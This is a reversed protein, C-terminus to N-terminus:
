RMRWSKDIYRQRGLETLQLASRYKGDPTEAFFTRVQIPVQEEDPGDAFAEALVRGDFEPLDRDIGMLALLTPAVDVNSAPVRVTAARKLDVGWAIFTNRVTWPSMSGHNGATGGLPGTKGKSEVYDTGPVGFPNKASGLVKRRKTRDAATAQAVIPETALASDGSDKSAVTPAAPAAPKPEQALALPVAALAAILLIAVPWLRRQVLQRWVNTLASM